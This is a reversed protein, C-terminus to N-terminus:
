QGRRLLVAVVMARQAQETNLCQPCTVALISHTSRTGRRKYEMCAPRTSVCTQLWHLEPRDAAEALQSM